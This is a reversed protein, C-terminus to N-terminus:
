QPDNYAVTSNWHDWKHDCDDEIAMNTAEQTILHNIM